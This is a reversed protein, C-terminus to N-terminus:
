VPMRDAALAELPAYIEVMREAEPTQDPHNLYVEFAPANRMERGQRPIWQGYLEAYTKGIGEFAGRHVTVAYDGGAITQVEVGDHPKFSEDVVVCADYRIKDPPTSEPDDHCLGLIMPRGALQGERGLVGMLRGWTPGCQDYAGTHRLYAVRLPTMTRIEAQMKGGRDLTRLAAPLPEGWHLGSPAVAVAARGGLRFPRPAVGFANRFSRTFAEHSEYGADLAISLISDGSGALRAAARELRLRRVLDAVPEGMMGRFIRHFHYPSFCALGALEELAPVEDLHKVIHELVLLMRRQYDDLTTNKMEAKM